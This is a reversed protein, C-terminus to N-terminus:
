PADEKILYADVLQIISASAAPGFFIDVNELADAANLGEVDYTTTGDGHMRFQRLPKMGYSRLRALCDECIYNPNKSSKIAVHGETQCLFCHKSQRGAM